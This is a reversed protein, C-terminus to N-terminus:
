NWNWSVHKDSHQVVKATQYKTKRRRLNLYMEGTIDYFYIGVFSVLRIYVLWPLLGVEPNEM